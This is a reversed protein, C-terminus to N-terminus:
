KNKNRKGHKIRMVIATIICLVGVFLEGGLLLFPTKYHNWLFLITPKDAGGIIGIAPLVNRKIMFIALIIILVAICILMLGIVILFKRFIKMGDGNKSM